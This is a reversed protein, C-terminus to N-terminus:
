DDSIFSVKVKRKRQVGTDRKRFVNHAAAQHDYSSSAIYRAGNDQQKYLRVLVM